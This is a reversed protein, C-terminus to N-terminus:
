VQETFQEIQQEENSSSNQLQHSQEILTERDTLEAIFNRSSFISSKM